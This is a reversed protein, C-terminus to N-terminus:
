QNAGRADEYLHHLHERLTLKARYLRAEVSKITCKMTAAIDAYSLGHYEALVLVTKQDDPLLAVAAAVQEGIEVNAVDRVVDHAGAAATWSTKGADDLSETQHRQRWRLHDVAANHALQFLWTTFKGRPKYTGLHQYVRVFIEQAIDESADLEGTMRYVFSLVPRKYRGM